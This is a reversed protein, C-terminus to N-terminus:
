GHHRANRRYSVADLRDSASTAKSRPAAGAARDRRSRCGTSTGRRRGDEYQEAAAASITPCSAIISNRPPISRLHTDGLLVSMFELRPIYQGLVVICMTLPAALLLGIPGWVLTWFSAAAVMALPSLGVGKGLVMPEIIHGVIPEGIAFLAITAIMM